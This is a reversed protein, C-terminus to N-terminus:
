EGMADHVLGALRNLDKIVLAHRQHEILGIKSLRNLERSVAERHTSIRSAFNAHTPAPFIRASNGERPTLYALRLLEAQIRYRVNLTSFEYVRATLERIETVFNKLLAESVNPQRRLIERFEAARMSAVQCADRAEVSASRPKSDIAAYEGFMDGPGLDRFSVCRGDVSYITVRANGTILFFADDSADMYDIILECPEYRRWTCCQQIRERVARPLGAFIAVSGLPDETQEIQSRAMAAVM